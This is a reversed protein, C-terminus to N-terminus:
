HRHVADDVDVGYLDIRLLRRIEDPVRSASPILKEPVIVAYRTMEEGTMRRLLQGYMTDIDLGSSSTVGKAEGIIIEDGRRAIVDVRRVETQVDWGQDRLWRCFVTVIESERGTNVVPHDWLALAPVAMSETWDLPAPSRRREHVGGLPDDVRSHPTKGLRRPARSGAM